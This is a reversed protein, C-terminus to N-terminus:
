SIIEIRQSVQPSKGLGVKILLDVIDGQVNSITLVDSDSVRVWIQQNVQQITRNNTNFSNRWDIINRPLRLIKKM